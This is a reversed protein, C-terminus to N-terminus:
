IFGKLTAETFPRERDTLRAGTGGTGAAEGGGPLPLRMRGDGLLALQRMAEKYDAEIKADPQHRHLKWIAISLAIDVLLAPVELAIAALDYRAALAADIVADTDALARDVVTEDVEGTAIVARDTLGIMVAEGYRDQLQSLTAYSMRYGRNFSGAASAAAAPLVGRVCPM